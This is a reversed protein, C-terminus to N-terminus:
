AHAFIVASSHNAAPRSSNKTRAIVRNESKINKTGQKINKLNTPKSHKRNLNDTIM